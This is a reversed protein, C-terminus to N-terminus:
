FVAGQRQRATAAARGEFGPPYLCRRVCHANHSCLCALWTRIVKLTELLVPSNSGAALLSMNALEMDFLVGGHLGLLVRRADSPLASFSTDPPVVRGKGGPQPLQLPATRHMAASFFARVRSLTRPTNVAEPLQGSAVLEAFLQQVDATALLHEHVVKM